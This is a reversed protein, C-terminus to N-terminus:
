NFEDVLHITFDVKLQAGLNHNSIADLIGILIQGFISLVSKRLIHQNETNRQNLISMWIYEAQYIHM